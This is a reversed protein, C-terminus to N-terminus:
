PLSITRRALTTKHTAYNRSIEAASLVRTYLDFEGVWGTYDLTSGAGVVLKGAQMDPTGTNTRTVPVEAGNIYMHVTATCPPTGCVTVAGASKTIVVNAWTLTALVVNTSSATVSGGSFEWKLAIKGSAPSAVILSLKHDTPGIAVFTQTAVTVDSPKIVFGMTWAPDASSNLPTSTPRNYIGPVTDALEFRSEYGLDLIALSDVDVSVGHGINYNACMDAGDTFCPIFQRQAPWSSIDNAFLSPYNVNGIRHNYCGHSFFDFFAWLGNRIIAGATPAWTLRYQTCGALNMGNESAGLTLNVTQLGLSSNNTEFPATYSDGAAVFRAHYPTSDTTYVTFPILSFFGAITNPFESTTPTFPGWPSPFSIFGTHDGGVGLYQQYVSVVYACGSTACYYVPNGFVFGMQNTYGITPNISTGGNSIVGVGTFIMTANSLTTSRYTASTGDCVNAPSYSSCTYWEWKTVDMVSNIDKPIRFNYYQTSRGNSSFGHLYSDAGHPSGTCSEDRCYSFFMLRGAKNTSGDYPSADKFMISSPSATYSGDSPALPADGTASMRGVYGSSAGTTVGTCSRAYSVSLATAATTTWKGNTGTNADHVWIVDGGGGTLGNSNTTLTVVGVACAVSSVTIHWYNYPNMWYIGGDPSAIVTSDGAAFYNPASQRFVPIVTWGSFATEPGSKWTYGSGQGSTSQGNWGAPVNTDGAGTGYSVMRNKAVITTNAISTMDLVTFNYLGISSGGLTSSGDNFTCLPKGNLTQNGVGNNLNLTFTSSSTGDAYTDGPRACFNTDGQLDGFQAYYNLIGGVTSGQLSVQAQALHLFCGLILFAGCRTLASLAMCRSGHLARLHRFWIMVCAFSAAPFKHRTRPLDFPAAWADACVAPVCQKAPHELRMGIRINAQVPNPTPNWISVARQGKITNDSFGMPYGISLCVSRDRSPEMHKVFAVVPLANVRRVQPKSRVRIVNLVSFILAAISYHVTGSIPPCGKVLGRDLLYQAKRFIPPGLAGQGSPKACALGINPPNNLPECPFM